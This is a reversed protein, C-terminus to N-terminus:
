LGAKRKLASVPCVKVCDGCSLCEGTGVEKRVDLEAPCVTDCKGCGICKDKDLVVRVIAFRALIGYMAGLPCLARCFFRSIVISLLLVAITILLRASNISSIAQLLQSHSDVGSLKNPVDAEVAAVPCYTCFLNWYDLEVSTQDSLIVIDAKHLYYPVTFIETTFSEGPELHEKYVKDEGRWM